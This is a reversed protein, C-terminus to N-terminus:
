TILFKEIQEKTFEPNNRFCEEINGNFHEKISSACEDIYWHDFEAVDTKMPLSCEPKGAEQMWYALREKAKELNELPCEGILEDHVMILLKFGLQKMVSDNYIGIMARKSMSAAGGQIRANVCQREARSIFGGNDTIFVNEKLASNKISEYQKRSKVSQLLNQYKNICNTSENNVLGRSGILPNFDNTSGKYKISYKPLQIDPLRRRRGWLDEVFGNIKANKETEDIWQKVKSFERYFTNIIDQAEEYTSGIQEAISNAGRGYM